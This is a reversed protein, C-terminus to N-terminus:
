KTEGKLLNFLMRGFKKAATADSFKTQTRIRNNNWEVEVEHGGSRLRVRAVLKGFRIFEGNKNITWKNVAEVEDQDTKKEVM